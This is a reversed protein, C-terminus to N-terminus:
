INFTLKLNVKTGLFCQNLRCLEYNYVSVYIVDDYNLVVLMMTVLKHIKFRTISMSWFGDSVVVRVYCFSGHVLM